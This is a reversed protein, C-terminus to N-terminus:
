RSKPKMGEALTRILERLLQRQAAPLALLDDIAARDASSVDGPWAPRQERVKLGGKGGYRLVHPELDVLEALVRLKDQQPISRGGLWASAAQFSM